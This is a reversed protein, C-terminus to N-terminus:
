SYELGLESIADRVAKRDDNVLAKLRREAEETRVSALALIAAKMANGSYRGILNCLIQEAGAPKAKALMLGAFVALDPNDLAIIRNFLDPADPDELEVLSQMCQQLVEVSETRPYYLRLTLPIRAEAIGLMGLARAAAKRPEIGVLDRHDRSFISSGDDFLLLTIDRLAGPAQMQALALACNARLHGATDFPVGGVNEEQVTRIGIRLVDDAHLYELRGFAFALHARIHCGPDLKPGDSSLREFHAIMIAGATLDACEGLAEAAIAAIYASKDKLGELLLQQADPGARRALRQMGRIRDETKRSRLLQTIEDPIM